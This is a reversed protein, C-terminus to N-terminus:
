AGRGGAAFARAWFTTAVRERACTRVAAPGGRQGTAFAASVASIETAPRCTEAAFAPGSVIAAFLFATTIFANRM